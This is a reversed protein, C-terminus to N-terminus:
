IKKSGGLLLGTDAVHTLTVDQDAGFKIAATDGLFMDGWEAATSGLDVAGASAPLLASTIKIQKNNIFTKAVEDGGESVNSMGTVSFLSGANTTTITVNGVTGDTDNTLSVTSSSRTATIGLVSGNIMDKIAEAIEATSLSADSGSGAITGQRFYIKTDEAGHWFQADTPSLTHRTIEDMDSGQTYEDYGWSVDKLVDTGFDDGPDKFEMSCANGKYGATEAQLLVGYIENSTHLNDAVSSLTELSGTLGIGKAIVKILGNDYAHQVAAMFVVSLRWRNSGNTVVRIFYNRSSSGERYLFYRPTSSTSNYKAILVAGEATLAAASSTGFGIKIEDGDVDRIVYHPRSAIAVLGSSGDNATLNVWATSVGGYDTPIWALLAKKAGDAEDYTPVVLRGQQTDEFPLDGSSSYGAADGGGSM